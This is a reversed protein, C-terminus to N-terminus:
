GDDRWSTLKVKGLARFLARAEERIERSLSKAPSSGYRVLDCDATLRGAKAALEESQSLQRVGEFAEQPTLAGPPRLAGIELYRVLLASVGRAAAHDPGEMQDTPVVSARRIGLSAWPLLEGSLKRALRAAYRRAAAKGSQRQRRLRKRVRLLSVYAGALAAASLGWAIWGAVISRSTSHVSEGIIITAPDFASVAVVRVPVGPTAQTMYKSISPDYSAISIPPLTVDGARSPRLRYIFTRAPPENSTEIPGPRIRLGVPLRDYRVLEPRELMGWAAPGSVKVRFDIEQGLRVVKPSAEAELSFPGVGGLFGSPRGASPVPHIEVQMSRSRGRRDDIRIPISPIQLMGPREAVLRIQILIANEEGVISGISSRVIPRQKIGVIWASARSIPPLNIEPRHGSAVLRIRLEFAQGVLFPGAGLETEVRLPESGRSAVAISCVVALSCFTHTFSAM